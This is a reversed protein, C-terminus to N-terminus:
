KNKGNKKHRLNTHEIDNYIGTKDYEQLYRLWFAKKHAKFLDDHVDEENEVKIGKSISTHFVSYQKLHVDGPIIAFPSNSKQGIHHIHFEVHDKGPVRPSKGAQILQRNTMQASESFYDPEIDIILARRFNWNVERYFKSEYYKIEDYNNIFAGLEPSVINNNRIYDQTAEQRNFGNEPTMYKEIGQASKPPMPRNRREDEPIPSNKNIWIRGNEKKVGRLKDKKVWGSVTSYSVGHMDAFDQMSVFVDEPEKAAPFLPESSEARDPASANEEPAAKAFITNFTEQMIENRVEVDLGLKRQVVLKSRPENTFDFFFKMLFHKEDSLDMDMVLNTLDLPETSSAGISDFLSHFLKPFVCVIEADSYIRLLTLGKVHELASHEPNVVKTTAKSEFQGKEIFGYPDSLLESLNDPTCAVTQRDLLAIHVTGDPLMIVRSILHKSM